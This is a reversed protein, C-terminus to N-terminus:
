EVNYKDVVIDMAKLHQPTVKEYPHQLEEKKLEKNVMNEIFKEFEAQFEVKYEEPMDVIMEKCNMAKQLATLIAIKKGLDNHLM